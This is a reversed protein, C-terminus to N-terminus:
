ARRPPILPPKGFFDKYIEHILKIDCYFLNIGAIMFSVVIAAFVGIRWSSKVSHMKTNGHVLNAEKREKKEMNKVYNEITTKYNADDAEVWKATADPSGKTKVLYRLSKRTRRHNIVMTENQITSQTPEPITQDIDIQDEKENKEQEEKADETSNPITQEVTNQHEQEQREEWLMFRDCHVCDKMNKHGSVNIRYSVPSVRETITFPGLYKPQDDDVSRRSKLGRLISIIKTFFYKPKFKSNRKKHRVEDRVLVKQGVKYERMEARNKEDYRNKMEIKQKEKIEKAKEQNEHEKPINYIIKEMEKDEIACTEVKRPIRVIGIKTNPYIARDDGKNVVKIKMTGTLGSIEQNKIELEYKETEKDAMFILKTGIIDNSPFIEIEGEENKKLWTKTATIASAQETRKNKREQKFACINAARQMDDSNKFSITKETVNIFNIYENIFDRGLLIEHNSEPLIHLKVNTDLNGIRIKQRIMGSIKTETKNVAVIKNFETAEIRDSNKMNKALEGGMISIASGSDLLMNVKKEGIFGALIMDHGVEVETENVYGIREETDINQTMTGESVMSTNM